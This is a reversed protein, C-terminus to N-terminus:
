FTSTYTEVRFVAGEGFDFLSVCVSLCLSLTVVTVRERVCPIGMASKM